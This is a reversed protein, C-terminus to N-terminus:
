HPILRDLADRDARTIQESSPKTKPAANPSVGAAPPAHPSDKRAVQRKDAPTKHTPNSPAEDSDTEIYLKARAIARDAM